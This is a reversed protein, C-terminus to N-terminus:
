FRAFTGTDDLPIAAEADAPAPAARRHALRLAAPREAPAPNVPPTAARPEVSAGAQAAGVLAELEAVVERAQRAQDNLEQGAAASEQATAATTQTVREMQGIAQTVQDLGQTQQRSASSIDDVLAKVQTASATVAAMSAEVKAVKAGGAAARSAADEILTATDKAAQASRQALNRVEDAVVAFGMGAEGARAAEVAANLALINTQFAIEDIAKVIKAVKASSEQIGRMAGVLDLLAANADRVTRDADVMLQSAQHANEANRRTMSAMEEMSASTEELSAAQQTAGQSLAASSSAVQGAAGLVQRTSATLAGAVRHLTARAGAVDRWGLGAAATALGLVGVMLWWSWRYSAAATARTDALVADQVSAIDAAASATQQALSRVKDVSEAAEFAQGNKAFGKIAEIGAHWESVRGILTRCRQRTDVDRAWGELQKAAAVLDQEVADIRSLAADTGKADARATAIVAQGLAAELDAVLRTIRGAQKVGQATGAAVDDVHRNLTAMTRLSGAGTVVMIALMGGFALMLKRVINGHM